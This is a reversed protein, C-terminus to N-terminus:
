KEDAALKETLANVFLPNHLYSWIRDYEYSLIVKTLDPDSDKDFVIVQMAEAANGIYPKILLYFMQDSELSGLIEVRSWDQVWNIFMKHSSFFGYKVTGAEIDNYFFPQDTERGRLVNAYEELKDYNMVDVKYTDNIFNCISLSLQEEYDDSCNASPVVNNEKVKNLKLYYKIPYISNKSEPNSVQIELFGDLDQKDIVTRVKEEYIIGANLGLLKDKGDSAFSFSLTFSYVVKCEVDCNISFIWPMWPLKKGTKPIFELWYYVVGDWYQTSTINVKKLDSFKKFKLKGTNIADRFQEKSGDDVYHLEQAEDFNGQSLLWFYKSLVEYSDKPNAYNELKLEKPSSISQESFLFNLKGNHENIPWYNIESANSICPLVICFFIIIKNM